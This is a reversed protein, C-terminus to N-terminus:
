QLKTHADSWVNFGQIHEEALAPKMDWDLMKKVLADVFEKKVVSIKKPDTVRDGWTEQLYGNLALGLCLDKELTTSDTRSTRDIMGLIM